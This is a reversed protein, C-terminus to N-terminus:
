RPTRWVEALGRRYQAEEELLAAAEDNLEALRAGTAPDTIMGASDTKTKDDMAALMVRTIEHYLRNIREMPLENM